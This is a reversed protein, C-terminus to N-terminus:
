FKFAVVQALRELALPGTGTHRPPPVLGPGGPHMFVKPHVALPALAKLKFHTPVLHWHRFVLKM